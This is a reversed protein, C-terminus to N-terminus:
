GVGYVFLDKREEYSANNTAGVKTGQHDECRHLIVLSMEDDALTYVLPRIFVLEEKRIDRIGPYQHPSPVGFRLAYYRPAPLTAASTLFANPVVATSDTNCVDPM